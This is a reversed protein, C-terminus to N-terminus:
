RVAKKNFKLVLGPDSKDNKSAASLGVKRILDGSIIIKNNKFVIEKTINSPVDGALDQGFIEYDSIKIKSPLILTLSEFDGFIGISNNISQIEQEVKVRKTIYERNIGRGITVVAVAGNPYLSSLIFPQDPSPNLVKALSL